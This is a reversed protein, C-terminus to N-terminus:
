RRNRWTAQVLTLTRANTREPQAALVDYRIALEVHIAAIMPTAARQALDRSSAARAVYYEQDNPQNM